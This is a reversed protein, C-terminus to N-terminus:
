DVKKQMVEDIEKEIEACEDSEDNFDYFSMSIYLKKYYTMTFWESDLENHIRRNIIRTPKRKGTVTFELKSICNTEKDIYAYGTCEGYEEIFIETYEDSRDYQFKYLVIMPYPDITIEYIDTEREEIIKEGIYKESLMSEKVQVLFWEYGLVTGNDHTKVSGDALYYITKGIKDGNEEKRYRYIADINDEESTFKTFESKERYPFHFIKSKTALENVVINEDSQYWESSYNKTQFLADISDNVIYVGENKEEVISSCGSLLIFVLCLFVLLLRKM